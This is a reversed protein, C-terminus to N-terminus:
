REQRALLLVQLQFSEAELVQRLQEDDRASVVVLQVDDRCIAGSQALNLAVGRDPGGIQDVVCTPGGPDYIPPEVSPSGIAYNGEHDCVALAGPISPDFAVGGFTHAPGDPRQEPIIPVGAVRPADTSPPRDGLLKSWYSSTKTAGMSSLADIRDSDQPSVCTVWRASGLAETLINAAQRWLTPRQLCLDDVWVHNPQDVQRFFGVVVGDHILVNTSQDPAGIAFELFQAHAADAGVRPRFYVPSWVALQSRMASTLELIEALDEAQADRVRM